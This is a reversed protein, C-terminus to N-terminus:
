QNDNGEVRRGGDEDDGFLRESKVEEGAGWGPGAGGDKAEDAQRCADRDGFEM